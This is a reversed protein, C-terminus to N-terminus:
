PIIGPTHPIGITTAQGRPLPGGTLLHPKLGRAHKLLVCIRHLDGPLQPTLVLDTYAHRRAHRAPPRAAKTDFPGPPSFHRRDGPCSARSRAPSSAPGAACPHASWRHVSSRTAASIPRNNLTRYENRPVEVDIVQGRDDLGPQPGDLVARPQERPEEGLGAEGEVGLRWSAWLGWGKLRQIV